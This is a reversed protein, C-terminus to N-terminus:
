RKGFLRRSAVSLLILGLGSGLIYGSESEPKPTITIMAAFAPTISAKAPLVPPAQEYITPSFKGPGAGSARTTVAVVWTATTHIPPICTAHANGIINSPSDISGIPAESACADGQAPSSTSCGSDPSIEDFVCDIGPTLMTPAADFAISADPVFDPRAPQSSRKLGDIALTTSDLNSFWGSSDGGVTALLPTLPFNVNAWDLTTQTVTMNGGMSVVGFNQAAPLSVVTLGALLFTSLTLKRVTM